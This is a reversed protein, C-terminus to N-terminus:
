SSGGCGGGGDPASAGDSAPGCHGGADPVHHNANDGTAISAVWLSPSVADSSADPSSDHRYRNDFRRRYGGANSGRRLALVSVVAIAGVCLVAILITM